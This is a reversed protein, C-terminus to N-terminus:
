FPPLEGARQAIKLDEASITRLCDHLRGILEPDWPKSKQSLHIIESLLAKLEENVKHIGSLDHPNAARAADLTNVIKRKENEAIAFPMKLILDDIFAIITKNIKATSQAGIALTDELYTLLVLCSRINGAEWSAAKMGPLVLDSLTTKIAAIIKQSDAIM